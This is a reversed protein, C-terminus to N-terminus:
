DFPLAPSLVVPFHHFTDSVDQAFHTVYTKVTLVIGFRSFAFSNVNMTFNWCVDLCYYPEDLLLIEQNEMFAQAIGLKQKMGLSYGKVKTKDRYDLGVKNM